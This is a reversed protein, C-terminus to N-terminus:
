AIDLAAVVNEIQSVLERVMHPQSDSAEMEATTVVLTEEDTLFTNKAERKPMIITAVM